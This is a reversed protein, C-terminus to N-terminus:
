EDSPKPIRALFVGLVAMIDAEDDDIAQTLAQPKFHAICTPKVRMDGRKGWMDMDCLGLGKHIM